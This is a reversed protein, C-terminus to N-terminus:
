KFFARVIRYALVSDVDDLIGSNMLKDLVQFKNDGSCQAMRNMQYEGYRDPPRRTRGTRRPMPVPKVENNTEDNQKETADEINAGDTTHMEMKSTDGVGDADEKHSHIDGDDDSGDGTMNEEVTDEVEGFDDEAVNDEVTDVVDEVVSKKNTDPNCADGCWDTFSASSQGDESESDNGTVDCNDKKVVEDIANADSSVNDKFNGDNLEENTDVDDNEINDVLFLHNRHLIKETNTKESRVRFVPMDPRPQEEVHYL